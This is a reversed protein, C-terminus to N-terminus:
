LNLKSQFLVQCTMGEMTLCSALEGVDILESHSQHRKTAVKLFVIASYISIFLVAKVKIFLVFLLSSAFPLKWGQGWAFKSASM